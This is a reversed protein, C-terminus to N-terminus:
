RGAAGIQRRIATSTGLKQPPAPPKRGTAEVKPSAAKAPRLGRSEAEEASSFWRINDPNVHKSGGTAAPHYVKGQVSALVPEAQVPGAARLLFATLIREIHPNQNHPHINNLPAKSTINDATPLIHLVAGPVLEALEECAARKDEGAILLIPREGYKRVNSRSDPELTLPGPALCAIGDVSRDRAAYKLAINCGMGIGVLVFRAPDVGPRRSLWGYAAEVDRDMASFLKRDREAARDALRMEPQGLSQGHGRLDIALCAFGASHIAPVLPDFAYSDSGYAHILIAIPARGAKRPPPTYTGAIVFNDKTVFRVHQRDPRRAASGAPHLPPVARDARSPQTAPQTHPASSTPRTTAPAPGPGAQQRRPLPSRVHGTPAVPGNQVAPGALCIGLSNLVLSLVLGLTRGTLPPM